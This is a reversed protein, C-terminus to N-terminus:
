KNVAAWLLHYMGLKGSISNYEPDKIGIDVLCYFRYNKNDNSEIDFIVLNNTNLKKNAKVYKYEMNLDYFAVRYWLALKDAYEESINNFHSMNAFYSNPFWESLKIKNSHEFVWAFHNNSYVAFVLSNKLELIDSNKKMLPCAIYIYDNEGIAFPPAINYNKVSKIVENEWFDSKFLDFIANIVDKEKDLKSFDILKNNNISEKFIEIWINYDGKLNIKDKDRILADLVKDM